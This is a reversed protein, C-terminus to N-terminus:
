MKRLLPFVTIGAAHSIGVDTQKPFDPIPLYVNDSLM